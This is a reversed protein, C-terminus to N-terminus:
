HSSILVRRENIAVALPGCIGAIEAGIGFDSLREWDALLFKAIPYHINISGYAMNLKELLPCKEEDSGAIESINYTSMHLSRPPPNTKNALEDSPPSEWKDVRLHIVVKVTSVINRPSDHPIKSSARPLTPAKTNSESIDNKIDIPKPTRKRISHSIQTDIFSRVRGGGNKRPKSTRLTLSALNKTDNHTCHSRLQRKM